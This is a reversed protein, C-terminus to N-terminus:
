KQEVERIIDEADDVEIFGLDELISLYRRITRRTLGFKYESAAIVRSLSAEGTGQIMKHIAQIRQQKVWAGDRRSSM